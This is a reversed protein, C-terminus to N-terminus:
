QKEIFRDINFQSLNYFLLQNNVYLVLQEPDKVWGSCTVRGEYGLRIPPLYGNPLRPDLYILFHSDEELNKGAQACFYVWHGSPSMTNNQTFSVLRREGLLTSDIIIPQVKLDGYWTALFLMDKKLPKNHAVILAHKFNESIEMRDAAVSFIFASENLLTCLPHGITDLNNDLVRWPESMQATRIRYFVCSPTFYVPLPSVFYPLPIEKLRKKNIIDDIVFFYHAVMDSVDDRSYYFLSLAIGKPFNIIKSTELNVDISKSQDCFNRIVKKSNFDLMFYYRNGKLFLTDEGLQGISHANLASYDDNEPFVDLDLEDRKIKAIAIEEGFVIGISNKQIVPFLHNIEGKYFSVAVPHLLSSSQEFM